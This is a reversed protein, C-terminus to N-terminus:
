AASSRGKGRGLAGSLGSSGAAVLEPGDPPDPPDPLAEILELADDSEAGEDGALQDGWDVAEAADLEDTAGSPMGDSVATSESPVASLSRDARKVIAVARALDPGIAVADIEVPQRKEGDKTEYERQSLRGIVIVGHGKKLTAAANEALARWCTVSAFLTEGDRWVGSGRDFRRPTSAIRFTTFHHGSVTKIIRPDAVLNGIMTIQTDLM